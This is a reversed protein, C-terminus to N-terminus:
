KPYKPESDKVLFPYDITTEGNRHIQIVRTTKFPTNRYLGTTSKGLCIRDHTGLEESVVTAYYRRRSSSTSRKHEVNEVTVTVIQMKAEIVEVSRVAIVAVVITFFIISLCFAFFAAFFRDESTLSRWKNYIAKM